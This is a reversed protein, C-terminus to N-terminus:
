YRQGLLTKLSRFFNLIIGFLEIRKIIIIYLISSNSKKNVYELIVVYNKSFEYNKSM